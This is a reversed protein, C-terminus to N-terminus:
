ISSVLAQAEAVTLTRAKFSVPSPCHLSIALIPHSLNCPKFHPDESGRFIICPLRMAAITGTELVSTQLGGYTRTRGGRGHRLLRRSHFWPKDPLAPPAEVWPKRHVFLYPTVKVSVLDQVPM